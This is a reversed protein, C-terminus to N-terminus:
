PPALPAANRRHHPPRSNRACNAVSPDEKMRRRLFLFFEWDAPLFAYIFTSVIYILSFKKIKYFQKLSFNFASTPKYKIWGRIILRYFWHYRLALKSKSFTLIDLFWLLWLLVGPQGVTKLPHVVISYFSIMFIVPLFKFFLSTFLLHVLYFIFLLYVM